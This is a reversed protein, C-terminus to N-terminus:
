PDIVKRKALVRDADMSFGTRPAPSIVASLPAAAGSGHFRIRIMGAFPYGKEAWTQRSTGDPVNRVSDSPVALRVTELELSMEDHDGIGLGSKFRMAPLLQWVRVANILDASQMWRNPHREPLNALAGRVQHASGFLDIRRNPHIVARARPSVWLKITGGFFSQWRQPRSPDSATTIHLFVIPAFYLRLVVAVEGSLMGFVGALCLLVAQHLKGTQRRATATRKPRLWTLSDGLQGIGSGTDDCRFHLEDGNTLIHTLGLQSIQRSVAGAVLQGLLM